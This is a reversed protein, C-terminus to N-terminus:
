EKALAQVENFVRILNGSWIKKIEQRTYGRRLLEITINKMEAVSRCGDVGGGGDFDTGIGVHDVGVVQVAHDIHDVVDSVTALRKYKDYIELREKKYNEIDEEALSDPDGYRDVLESLKLELEPNPEPSKIYNSLICIQIVGGNSKLAQLMDDSLNRPSSCLARCSSHSAIVPAESIAIVDYFSKDSIHSVDIMMGLRNMEKVVEEGFASLGDSEPGNPDTSSDCIDNNASHCLTIYRVGLDYYHRIRGLDKGIPYGNELGIFVARKKEKKIKYVDEPSFALEALTYNREINNYITDIIELTRRHAENFASDNRPGQAIFVAFFEADLGGEIMRPFDVCGLENKEGLEFDDGMLNLPTDCHTDVTLFKRHIRNARRSLQNDTTECSSALILIIILLMFNKM